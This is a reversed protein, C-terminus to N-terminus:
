LLRQSLSRTLNPENFRAEFLTSFLPENTGRERSVRLFKKLKSAYRHPLLIKLDALRTVVNAFILPSKAPDYAFSLSICESEGYGLSDRNESRRIIEEKSVQLALIILFILQVFPSLALSRSRKEPSAHRPKQHFRDNNRETHRYCSFRSKWETEIRSCVDSTVKM